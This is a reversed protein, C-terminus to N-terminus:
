EVRTGPPATRAAVLSKGPTRGKTRAHSPMRRAHAPCPQRSSLAYTLPHALLRRGLERPDATDCEVTARAVADTSAPIHAPDPLAALEAPSPLPLPLSRDVPSLFEEADRRDEGVVAEEPFRTGFVQSAVRLMAGPGGAPGGSGLTASTAVPCVYPTFEAPYWDLHRRWGDAVPRFPRRIRLCPGRFLGDAPDSLFDELM